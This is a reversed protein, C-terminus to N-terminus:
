QKKGTQSSLAKCLCKSYTSRYRYWSRAWWFTIAPNICASREAQLAATAQEADMTSGKASHEEQKRGWMGFSNLPMEVDSGTRQLELIPKWVCGAGRWAQLRVLQGLSLAVLASFLSVGGKQVNNQGTSVITPHRRDCVGATKCICGEWFYGSGSLMERVKLFM